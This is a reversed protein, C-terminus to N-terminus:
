QDTTDTADAQREVYAKSVWGEIETKVKYWGNEEQLIEVKADKKLPKAVKEFDGGAGSRINLTSAKIIGSGSIQITEEDRSNFLIQNRMRDLPFAPGPDEKRGPSIEEHGLIEKISPYITKLADCIATVTAIQEETYTKWYKLQKSNRNAALIVDEENYLKGFWTKYQSGVKTCPGANDIEIGISYRNYWKRGGYESEGAHWTQINFPAVQYIEGKQGIVLHASAGVGTKALHQASSVASSGATYHIIISDPLGNATQYKKNQDINKQAKYTEIPTPSAIKHNKIQIEM